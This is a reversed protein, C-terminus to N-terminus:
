CGIKRNNGHLWPRPPDRGPRDPPTRRQDLVPDPNLGPHSIGVMSVFEVDAGKTCSSWKKITWSAFGMQAFLSTDVVPGSVQTCGNIKTAFVAVVSDRVTDHPIFDKTGHYARIAVPTASAACNLQTPDTKSIIAYNGAMPVAAAIVSPRKCALHFSFSAGSSRGAAYIRKADISHNKKLEIILADFLAESAASDEWGYSTTAKSGQPSVLILKEAYAAKTFPVLSSFGIQYQTPSATSGHFYLILPVPTSTPLGPPVYIAYNRQTTGVMLTKLVPQVSCGNVSQLSRQPLPRRSTLSLQVVQAASQPSQEDAQPSLVQAQPSFQSVQGASQPVQGAPASQPSPTQPALSVQAM